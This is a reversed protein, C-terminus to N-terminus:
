LTALWEHSVKLSSSCSRERSEKNFNDCCVGTCVDYINIIDTIFKICSVISSTRDSLHKTKMLEEFADHTEYFCNEVQVIGYCM